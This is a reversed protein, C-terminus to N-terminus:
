RRGNRLPTAVDGLVRASGSVQGTRPSRTSEWSSRRARLGGHIDDDSLILVMFFYM